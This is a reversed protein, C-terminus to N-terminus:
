GNKAPDQSILGKVFLYAATGFAAKALQPDTVITGGVILGSGEIAGILSSKWHLLARRALAKFLAKM